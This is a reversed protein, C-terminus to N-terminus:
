AERVGDGSLDDRGNDKVDSDDGLPRAVSKVIVTLLSVVRFRLMVSAMKRPTFPGLDRNHPLLRCVVYKSRSERDSILLAPTGPYSASELCQTDLFRVISAIVIDRFETELLLKIETEKPM